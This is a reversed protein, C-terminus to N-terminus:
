DCNKRRKELDPVYSKLKKSWYGCNVDGEPEWDVKM